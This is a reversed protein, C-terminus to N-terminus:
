FGADRSSPWVLRAWQKCLMGFALKTENAENIAQSDTFIVMEGGCDAEQRGVPKVKVALDALL